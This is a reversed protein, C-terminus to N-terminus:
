NKGDPSLQARDIRWSQGEQVLRFRGRFRQSVGGEQFALIVSVEATGNSLLKQENVAWRLDSIDLFAHAFDTPPLEQQWSTSLSSYAQEFNGKGVNDLYRLLASRAALPGDEFTFSSPPAVPVAPTEHNAKWWFFILTPIGLLCLLAAALKIAETFINVGDVAKQKLQDGASRARYAFLIRLGRSVVSLKQRNHQFRTTEEYQNQCRKGRYM